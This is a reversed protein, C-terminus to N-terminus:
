WMLATCLLKKTPPKLHLLIWDGRERGERAGGGTNGREERCASAKGWGGEGEWGLGGLEM